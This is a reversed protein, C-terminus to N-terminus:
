KVAKTSFYKAHRLLWRLACLVPLEIVFVPARAVVREGAAHVFVSMLVASTPVCVLLGVLGTTGDRVFAVFILFSSRIGKSVSAKPNLISPEMLAPVSVWPGWPLAM